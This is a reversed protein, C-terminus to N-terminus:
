EVMSGEALYENIFKDYGIKMIVQRLSKVSKYYTGYNSVYNENNKRSYEMIGEKMKGGNRVWVSYFVKRQKPPLYKTALKIIFGFVNCIRRRQEQSQPKFDINKLDFFAILEDSFPLEFCNKPRNRDRYIFGPERKRM